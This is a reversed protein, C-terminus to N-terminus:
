YIFFGYYLFHCKWVKNFHVGFLQLNEIDNMWNMPFCNHVPFNNSLSIVFCKTNYEYKPRRAEPKWNTQIQVYNWKIFKKKHFVRYMRMQGWRLDIVDYFRLVNKWKLEIFLLAELVNKDYIHSESLYHLDLSCTCNMILALPKRLYRSLYNFHWNRRLQNFLAHMSQKLSTMFLIQFVRLLNHEKWVCSFNKRRLYFLNM